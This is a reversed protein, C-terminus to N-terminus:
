SSIMFSRELILRFDIKQFCEGVGEAVIITM